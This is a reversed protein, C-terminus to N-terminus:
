LGIWNPQCSITLPPPFQIRLAGDSCWRQFNLCKLFFFFFFHVSRILIATFRLGHFIIRYEFCSPDDGISWSVLWIALQNLDLIKCLIRFLGQRLFSFFGQLIGTPWSPWISFSGMSRQHEFRHTSSVHSSTIIGMKHMPNSRILSPDAFSRLSNGQLHAGTSPKFNWRLIM